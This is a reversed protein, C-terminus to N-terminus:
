KTAEAKKLINQVLFEDHITEVTEYFKIHQNNIRTNEKMKALLEPSFKRKVRAPKGTERRCVRKSRKKRIGWQSLKIYITSEAVGYLKAIDYVRVNENYKQIINEKNDLLMRHIVAKNTQKSM